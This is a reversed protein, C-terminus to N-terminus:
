APKWQEYWHRLRLVGGRVLSHLVNLLLYFLFSASLGVALCLVLLLWALWIALLFFMMLSIKEMSHIWPASSIWELGSLIIASSVM